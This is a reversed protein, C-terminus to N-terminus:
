CAVRSIGIRGPEPKLSDFREAAIV